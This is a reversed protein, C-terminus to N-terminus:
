FVVRPFINFKEIAKKAYDISQYVMNSKNTMNLEGLKYDYAPIFPDGDKNLTIWKVGDTALKEVIFENNDIESIRLAKIEAM